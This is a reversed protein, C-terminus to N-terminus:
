NFEDLVECGVNKLGTEVKDKGLAIYNSSQCRLYVVVFLILMARRDV